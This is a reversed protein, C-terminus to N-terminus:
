LAYLVMMIININMENPWAFTLSRPPHASTALTLRDRHENCALPRGCGTQHLRSFDRGPIDYLDFCLLCTILIM